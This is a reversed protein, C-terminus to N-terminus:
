KAKPKRRLMLALEQQMKLREVEAARDKKARDKTLRIHRKLFLERELDYKM